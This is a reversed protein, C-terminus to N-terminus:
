RQACPSGGGVLHSANHSCGVQPRYAVSAIKQWGDIRRLKIQGSAACPRFSVYTPLTSPALAAHPRPLSLPAFSAPALTSCRGLTAESLFVPGRADDQGADVLRTPSRAQYGRAFIVLPLSSYVGLTEEWARKVLRRLAILIRERKGYKPPGWPAVL